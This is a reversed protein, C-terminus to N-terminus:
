MQMTPSGSDATNFIPATDLPAELDFVITAKADFRTSTATNAKPLVSYSVFGAGSRTRIM